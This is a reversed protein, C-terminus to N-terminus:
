SMAYASALLLSQAAEAPTLSVMKVGKVHGDGSVTSDCVSMCRAGVHHRTGGAYTVACVSHEAMCVVKSHLSVIHQFHNRPYSLVVAAQLQIGQM